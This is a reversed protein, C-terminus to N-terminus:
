KAQVLINDVAFEDRSGSGGVDNGTFKLYIFGGAPVSASVTVKRKIKKWGAGDSSANSTYDLSPVSTYTTGNTSYSFNLSNSRNANNNVYIRYSFYFTTVAAGTNNSIKFEFDGPTFDLDDPQVGLAYNGNGTLFSYVGGTTVNGTSVGRAFDGTLKTDGFAMPGDSLGNVKIINSELKGAEFVPQFGLGRFQQFRYRYPTKFCPSDSEFIGSVLGYASAFEWTGIVGSCNNAPIAQNNYRHIGEWTIAKGDVLFGTTSAGNGSTIDCTTFNGFPSCANQLGIGSNYTNGGLVVQTTVNTNGTAAGTFMLNFTQIGANNLAPHGQAITVLYTGSIPTVPARSTHKAAIMNGEFSKFIVNSIVPNLVRNEIAMSFSLEESEFVLDVSETGLEVIQNSKVYYSEGTHTTLIATPYRELDNNSASTYPISIDFTGRYKSNNTTFVGTYAGLNPNEATIEHALNQTENLKEDVDKSCSVFLSISAIAILIKKM